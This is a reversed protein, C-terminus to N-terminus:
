KRKAGAAVWRDFQEAMDNVVDAREQAATGFRRKKPKGPTVRGIKKLGRRWTSGFDGSEWRVAVLLGSPDAYPSGTGDGLVLGVSGPRLGLYPDHGQLEVIDGERFRPGRPPNSAYRTRDPGEDLRSRARDRISDLNSYVDTSRIPAKKNFPWSTNTACEHRYKDALPGTARVPASFDSAAVAASRFMQAISPGSGASNEGRYTLTGDSHEGASFFRRNRVFLALVENPESPVEAPNTRVGRRSPKRAGRFADPDMPLPLHTGGHEAAYENLWKQAAVSAEHPSQGSALATRRLQQYAAGRSMTKGHLEIKGDWYRAGESPNRRRAPRHRSFRNRM